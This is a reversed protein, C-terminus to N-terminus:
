IPEGDDKAMDQLVDTGLDPEGDFEGLEPSELSANIDASTEEELASEILHKSEDSLNPDELIDSLMSYITQELVETFVRCARALMHIEEDTPDSNIGLFETILSKCNSNDQDSELDELLEEVPSEETMVPVEEYLPQSYQAVTSPLITIPM